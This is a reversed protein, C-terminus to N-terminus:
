KQLALNKPSNKFIIETYSQSVRSKSLRGHFLCFSKLGIRYLLIYSSSKLIVNNRALFELVTSFTSYKPLKRFLSDSSRGREGRSSIVFFNDQDRTYQPAMRSCSFKTNKLLYRQMLLAFYFQRKFLMSSYFGTKNRSSSTTRSGFFVEIVGM